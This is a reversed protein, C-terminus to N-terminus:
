APAALGPVKFIEGLRPMVEKSILELNRLVAVDGDVEILGIFFAVQPTFPDYLKSGGGELRREFRGRMLGLMTPADTYVTGDPVTTEPLEELVGDRVRWTAAECNQQISRRAKVNLEYVVVKIVQEDSRAARMQIDRIEDQRKNARKQIYGSYARLIRAILTM